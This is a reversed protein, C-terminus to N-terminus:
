SSFALGSRTTQAITNENVRVTVSDAAARVQRGSADDSGSRRRQYDSGEHVCAGPAQKGSRRGSWRAMDATSGREGRLGFVQHM